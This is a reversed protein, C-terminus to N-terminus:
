VCEVSDVKELGRVDGWRRRESIRQSYYLIVNRGSRSSCAGWVHHDRADLRGVNRMMCCRANKPRCWDSAGVQCRIANRRGDWGARWPRLTLKLVSACEQVVSMSFMAFRWNATLMCRPYQGDECCSHVSVARCPHYRKETIVM